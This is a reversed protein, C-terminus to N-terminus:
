VQIALTHVEIASHETYRRSRKSHKTIVDVAGSVGNILISDDESPIIITYECLRM